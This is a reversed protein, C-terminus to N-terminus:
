QQFVSTSNQENNAPKSLIGSSYGLVLGVLGAGECTLLPLLGLLAGGAHRPGRLLLRTLHCSGRLLLRTLHCPGRLLLRTLHRVLGALHGPLLPLLRLLVGGISCLYRRVLCPAHHLLRLVRHVGRELRKLRIDSGLLGGGAGVGGGPLLSLHM